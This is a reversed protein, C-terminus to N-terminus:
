LLAEEEAFVIDDAGLGSNHPNHPPTEIDSYLDPNVEFKPSPKRGPGKREPQEFWRIMNHAELLELPRDLTEVKRFRSQRVASFLDHVAGPNKSVLKVIERVNPPGDQFRRM